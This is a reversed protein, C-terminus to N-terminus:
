RKTPSILKMGSRTSKISLDLLGAAPPPVVEEWTLRYRSGFALLGEGFRVPLQADFTYAFGGTSEAVTGLNGRFTLGNGAVSYLTVSGAIAAKRISDQILTMDRIALEASEAPGGEDGRTRTFKQHVASKVSQHTFDDSDNRSFVVCHNPGSLKGLSTILRELSLMELTVVQLKARVASPSDFGLRDIMRLGKPDTQNHPSDRIAKPLNGHFGKLASFLAEKSMENVSISGTEKLEVLAPSIVGPTGDFSTSLTSPLKELGKVWASRDLTLGPTLPVLGERSRAVLIVRDGEALNLLFQAAAQFASMRYSPDLIPEFVIVWNQPVVGTVRPTEVKKVAVDRGAVQVKWEEIGLNDPIVGHEDVALVWASRTTPSPVQALLFPASLFLTLCKALQM